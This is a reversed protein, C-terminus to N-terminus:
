SENSNVVFFVNESTGMRITSGAKIEDQAERITIPKGPKNNISIFSAKNQEGRNVQEVRLPVVYVSLTRNSKQLIDKKDPATVQKKDYYKSGTAQPASKLTFPVKVRETPIQVLIEVPNTLAIKNEDTSALISKIEAATKLSVNGSQDLAIVMDKTATVPIKQLPCNPDKKANTCVVIYRGPVVSITADKKITKFPRIGQNEDVVIAYTWPKGRSAPDTKVMKIKIPKVKPASATLQGVSSSVVIVMMIKPLINM